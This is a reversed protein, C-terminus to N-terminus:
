VEIKVIESVVENEEEGFPKGTEETLVTVIEDKHTKLLEAYKELIQKRENINKKRWQTFANAAADLADNAQSANAMMLRHSISGTAPNITNLTSGKGEIWQNNIFLKDM